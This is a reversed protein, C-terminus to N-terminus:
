VSSGNNSPNKLYGRVMSVVNKQIEINNLSKSVDQSNSLNQASQQEPIILKSKGQFSELDGEVGGLQTSVVNLRDDIFSITSKAIKKKDEINAEIFESVIGDLVEKGRELNETLLSLEIITNNTATMTVSFRKSLENAAQEISKVTVKYKEKEYQIKGNPILVFKKNDLLFPENWKVSEYKEKDKEGYSIECGITTPNSVTFDLTTNIDNTFQPVLSFPANHYVDTQVLNETKYYSINLNYKQVVKKILSTSRLLMMDNQLNPVGGSLAKDVLDNSGGSSATTTGKVLILASTNYKPVTFTIYLFAAGFCVVLSIIFLPYYSLYKVILEKLTPKGISQTKQVPGQTIISM